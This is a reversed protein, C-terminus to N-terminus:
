RHNAHWQGEHPAPLPWRLQRVVGALSGSVDGGLEIRAFDHIVTEHAIMYHATAQEEEPAAVAIDRFKGLFFSTIDAIEEMHTRWTKDHYADAYFAIRAAVDPEEIGLGLGTLFPRLLAKTETELQMLTGWKYRRLKDEERALYDAFFAEGMVEGGYFFEAVANLYEDRTM